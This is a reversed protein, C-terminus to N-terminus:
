SVIRKLVAIRSQVRKAMDAKNSSASIENALEADGIIDRVWNAFDNKEKNVHYAFVKGPMKNLAKVLDIMSCLIAGDCCWFCREGEITALFQKASDKTLKMREVEKIRTKIDNLVNMFTIFAEYPSDYPNFYKHVDGDNFWKTCMYYFHDSTQMRRWKETLEPNNLGLVADRLSYVNVLASKQMNNGAWATLDREIDAWSVAHPIDLEAVAEYRKLADSVTAFENDPHKLIERPLRKFFEFIGTDAWQHEGITEYDMFLNVCNGNGNIRSVWQGFKEATLPWEAWDRSSFRFAIDDSLRYNKLLLKINTNIPKYVFNPSRWGLIHDAGEALIGDYGMREVEKAINNNYVLETNRFVRPEKNFIGRIAKRHMKIQEKFEDRNYLAALSHHYTEELIEVRGTDVLESFSDLANPAYQQLQELVMGSFSYTLKFEPHKQLLNLMANNAPLYCKESIKHMVERNKREDFYNSNKGIEFVSYRRLRFPQHVQFYLCISVM